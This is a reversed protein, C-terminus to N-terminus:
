ATVARGRAWRSLWEARGEAGGFEAIEDKTSERDPM